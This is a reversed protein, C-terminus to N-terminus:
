STEHMAEIRRNEAWLRTVRADYTAQLSGYLYVNCNWCRSESMDPRKEATATNLKTIM